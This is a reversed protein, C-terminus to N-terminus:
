SGQASGSRYATIKGDENLVFLRGEAVIPQASIRAGGQHERAIFRGTARDLWHVYGDFDGIVVANGIVAPSSLSRRKLGDQQWV